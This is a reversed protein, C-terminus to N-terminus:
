ANKERLKAEIARAIRIFAAKWNQGEVDCTWPDEAIIRDIEEDTLPNSRHQRQFGKNVAKILDQVLM